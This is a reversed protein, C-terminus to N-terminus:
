EGNLIALSSQLQHTFQNLAAVTSEDQTERESIEEQLERTLAALETDIRSAWGEHAELNQREKLSLQQALAAIATSREQRETTWKRELDAAHSELQQLFRGERVLRSKKESEMETKLSGVLAAFTEGKKKVSELQEQSEKQWKVELSELKAELCEMRGAITASQHDLQKQLRKEM